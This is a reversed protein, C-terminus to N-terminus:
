FTLKDKLTWNFIEGTMKPFPPLNEIYHSYFQLLWTYLREGAETSSETSVVINCSCNLVQTEPQNQCNLWLLDAWEAVSIDNYFFSIQFCPKAELNLPMIAWNKQSFNRGNWQDNRVEIPDSVQMHTEPPAKIVMLMRESPDAISRLDQCTVYGLTSITLSIFYLWCVDRLM